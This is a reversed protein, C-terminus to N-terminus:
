IKTKQLKGPVWGNNLYFPLDGISIMKNEINNNIWRRCSVIPKKFNCTKKIGWGKKRYEELKIIPITKEKFGKLVIITKINGM